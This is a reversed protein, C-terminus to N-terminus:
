LFIRLYDHLKDKPSLTKSNKQLFLRHDKAFGNLLHQDFM